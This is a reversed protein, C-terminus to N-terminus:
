TRQKAKPHLGDLADRHYNEPNDMIQKAQALTKQTILKLDKDKAGSEMREIFQIAYVARERNAFYQCLILLTKAATLLLKNDRSEDLVKGILEMVEKLLEEGGEQDKLNMKAEALDLKLSIVAWPAPDQKGAMLELAELATAYAAEVYELSPDLKGIEHQTDGFVKRRAILNKIWKPKFDPQDLVTPVPEGPRKRFLNKDGSTFLCHPCTIMRNRNYDFTDNSGPVQVVAPRGLLNPTTRTHQRFHIQPVAEEGCVFCTFLRQVWAKKELDPEKKVSKLKVRAILPNKRNRWDVGRLGWNVMREFEQTPIDSLQALSELFGREQTSIVEDTAILQLLNLFVQIREDLTTEAPPRTLTPAFRNKVYAMLQQRDKPDKVMGIAMKLFNLELDEIQRDLLIGAILTQAYWVRQPESFENLWDTSDDPTLEVGESKWALGEEMWAQWEALYKAEFGIVEAVEELFEREAEALDVDSLLVMVLESFIAALLTGHTGDPPPSLDPAKGSQIAQALAARDEPKAVLALVPKLFAVEARNIEGDALVAAIVLKAYWLKQPEKLQAVPVAM